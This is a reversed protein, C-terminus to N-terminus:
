LRKASKLASVLIEAKLIAAVMRVERPTIWLLRWENSLKGKIANASAAAWLPNESVNWSLNWKGTNFNHEKVRNNIMVM